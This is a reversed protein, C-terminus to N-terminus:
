LLQGVTPMYIWFCTFLASRFLCLLVPVLWQVNKALDPFFFVSTQFCVCLAGTIFVVGGKDTSTFSGFVFGVLVATVLAIPFCWSLFQSFHSQDHHYAGYRAGNWQFLGVRQM